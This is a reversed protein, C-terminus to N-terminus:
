IKIRKWKGTRLYFYSLVLMSLMYVLESAWFSTLSGPFLWGSLLIWAFYIVLTFVEIYLSIRTSGTGNVANFIVGGMSFILLAGSVMRLPGVTDAVIAPNRSFITLLWEPFFLNVQILIFIVPVSISVIRRVIPIVEFQREAGMANSVLTNCASSFGWVPIMMIIYISKIIASVSLAQEGLKEIFLFFVFWSSVSIWSQLMVPIGLNLFSKIITFDPKRFKFLSYKQNDRRFFTYLFYGTLGCGEAIVSATASGRIGMPSFGFHGFILVQNFFINILAAGTTIYIIIRTKTIGIYFARFIFTMCIFLLGYSRISVYSLCLEFIGPSKVLWHLLLHSFGQIIIFLFIGICIFSYFANGTILGIAHYSKEGNRRGILIQVGM